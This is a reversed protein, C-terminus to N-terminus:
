VDRRQRSDVYNGNRIVPVNRQLQRFGATRPSLASSLWRVLAFRM